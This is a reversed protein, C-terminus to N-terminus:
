VDALAKRLLDKAKAVAQEEIKDIDKTDKNMFFTCEITSVGGVEENFFDAYVQARYKQVGEHIAVRWLKSKSMTKM